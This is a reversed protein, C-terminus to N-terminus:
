TTRGTRRAASCSSSSSRPSTPTRSSTSWSTGSSASGAASSTPRVQLAPRRAAIQEGFDLAGRRVLEAQYAHYVRALERLRVIELAAGDRVYDDALEDIEAPGRAPVTSPRHAHGDGAVTRRAERDAVKDSRGADETWRRRRAAEARESARLRAYDARPGARLPGLNGQTELRITPRARLERLPGRLRGAREAVFRDFDEPTVLEDKARNIFQVFGPFAGTRTTSSARARAAPRQLLLMQGVGDLVDPSRRCGPM